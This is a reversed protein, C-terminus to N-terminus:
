LEVLEIPQHNFTAFLALLGAVLSINDPLCLMPLNKKTMQSKMLPQYLLLHSQSCPTGAVFCHIYFKSCTFIRVGSELSLLSHLFYLVIVQM